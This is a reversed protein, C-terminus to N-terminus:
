SDVGAARNIHSGNWRDGVACKGSSSGASGLATLGQAHNWRLLDALADVASESEARHTPPDRTVRDDYLVVLLAAIWLTFTSGIVSLRRLYYPSAGASLSICRRSSPCERSTQAKPPGPRVAARM